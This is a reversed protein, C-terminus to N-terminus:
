QFNTAYHEYSAQNEWYLVQKDSDKAHDSIIIRCQWEIKYLMHSM